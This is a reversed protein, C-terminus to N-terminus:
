PSANLNFEKKLRASKAIEAAKTVFDLLEKETEAEDVKAEFFIIDDFRGVFEGTYIAPYYQGQVHKIYGVGWPMKVTKYTAYPYKDIDEVVGEATSHRPREGMERIEQAKKDLEEQMQSKLHQAFPAMEPPMSIVKVDLKYTATLNSPHKTKQTSKASFYKMMPHNKLMAGEVLTGPMIAKVFDPLPEHGPLVPVSAQCPIVSLLLVATIALLPKVFKLM